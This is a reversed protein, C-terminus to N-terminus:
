SPDLTKIIFAITFAIAISLYVKARFPRYYEETLNAEYLTAFIAAFVLLHMPFASVSM